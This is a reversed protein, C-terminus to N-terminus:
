RSLRTMRKKILPADKATPALRLYTRFAQLANAKDAKQAYALGLGRYGAAYNPYEAIAERYDRIAGDPDGAFLLQNGSAYAARAKALAADDDLPATSAAPKAPTKTSDYDVVVRKSRVARPKAAPPPPAAPAHAPAPAPAIAAAAPRAPPPAAKPKAPAPASPPPAPAEQAPPPAAASAVESGSARAEDTAAPAKSDSGGGRTAAIVAVVLLMLGAAAGAILVLKRRSRPPTSEPEPEGEPAPTPSPAAVPAYQVPPPAPRPEVPPPSPAHQVPPPTVARQVPPPTVARQVPPTPSSQVPTPAPVRQVPPPTPMRQVGAVPTAVRPPPKAPQARTVAATKRSPEPEPVQVVPISRTQKVLQALHEQPAAPTHKDQEWEAVDMADIEVVSPKDERDTM